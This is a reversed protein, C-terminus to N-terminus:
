RGLLSDFSYSIGIQPRIIIKNNDVLETRNSATVSIPLSFGSGSSGLTLKLQGLHIQGAQTFVQTASSPLGTFSIGTLPSSPTVNLIAPSIQDQFYYALSFTSNDLKEMKPITFDAEAGFQADRFRGAGPISSSPQSNYISVAGNATVKWSKVSQGYIIRFTSNTPQSAPSNFDYEASLLPKAWMVKDFVQRETVANKAVSDAYGLVVNIVSAVDNGSELIPLLLVIREKMVAEIQDAGANLLMTATKSEWEAFKGKNKENILGSVQAWKTVVDSAPSKSAWATQLDGMSPKSGFLLLKATFQTLSFNNGGQTGTVQQAGGSAQGTTTGTITSPQSLDLSASYSVRGLVDLFTSDVCLPSKVIQVACEAALGSLGGAFPSLLQDLSGSITTTQGSTSSTLAGYENAISLLSSTFNKPIVNTSGSSSVSSGAQKEVASVLHGIANKIIVRDVDASFTRALLDSVCGAQVRPDLDQKLLREDDKILREADDTNRGQQKATQYDNLHSQYNNWNGQFSEQCGDNTFLKPLATQAALVANGGLSIAVGCLIRALVIRDM